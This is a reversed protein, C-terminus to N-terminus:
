CFKGILRLVLMAHPITWSIPHIDNALFIEIYGVMIHGEFLFPLVLLNSFLSTNSVM